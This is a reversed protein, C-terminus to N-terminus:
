KWLKLKETTAFVDESRQGGYTICTLAWMGVLNSPFIFKFAALVQREVFRTHDRSYQETEKANQPRERKYQQTGHCEATERTNNQKRSM